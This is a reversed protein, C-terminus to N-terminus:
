VRRRWREYPSPSPPSPHHRRSRRFQGALQPFFPWRKSAMLGTKCGPALVVTASSIGHTTNPPIPLFYYPPAAIECGIRRAFDLYYGQENEYFAADPPRAMTGAVGRYSAAYRRWYFPPIAPIRVNYPGAPRDCTAGNYLARLAGWGQFLTATETSWCTSPAVMAISRWCCRRRWCSTASAPPSTSSCGCRNVPM